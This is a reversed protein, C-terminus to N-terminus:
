RASGNKRDNAKIITDHEVGFISPTLLFRKIAQFRTLEEHVQHVEIANLIAARAGMVQRQRASLETTVLAARKRDQEKRDSAHEKAIIQNGHQTLAEDRLDHPLLTVHYEFGGGRGKRKRCLDGNANWEERKAWEIVRKKSSPYRPCDLTKVLDTIEKASFWEQIM